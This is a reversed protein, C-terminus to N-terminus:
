GFESSTPKKKVIKFFTKYEILWKANEFNKVKQNM